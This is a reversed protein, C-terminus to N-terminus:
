KEPYVITVVVAVTQALLLFICQWKM